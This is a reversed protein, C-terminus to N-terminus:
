EGGELIKDLALARIYRAAAMTSYTSFEECHAACAERVAEAAELACVDGHNSPLVELGAGLEDGPELAALVYNPLSDLADWGDTLGHIKADGACENFWLSVADRVRQVVDDSM